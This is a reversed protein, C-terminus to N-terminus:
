GTTSFDIAGGPEDVNRSVVVIANGVKRIVIERGDVVVFGKPGLKESINRCISGLNFSLDGPSVQASLVLRAKRDM